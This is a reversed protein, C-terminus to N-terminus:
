SHIQEEPKKSPGFSAPDNVLNTLQGSLEDIQKELLDILKASKGTDQSTLKLIEITTRMASLPTRMDHVAKSILQSWPLDNSPNPPLKM